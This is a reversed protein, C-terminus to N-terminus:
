RLNLEQASEVTTASSMIFLSTMIKAMANLPMEDASAWAVEGAFIKEKCPEAM